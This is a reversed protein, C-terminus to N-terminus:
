ANLLAAAAKKPTCFDSDCSFSKSDSVGNGNMSAPTIKAIPSTKTRIVITLM